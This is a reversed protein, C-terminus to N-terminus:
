GCLVVFLDGAGFIDGVSVFLVGICTLLAAEVSKFVGSILNASLIWSHHDACKRM